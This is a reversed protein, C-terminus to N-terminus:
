AKLKLFINMCTPTYSETAPKIPVVLWATPESTSSDMTREIKAIYFDSTVRSHDMHCKTVNNNLSCPERIGAQFTSIIGGVNSWAARTKKLVFIVPSQLFVLLLVLAAHDFGQCSKIWTKDM